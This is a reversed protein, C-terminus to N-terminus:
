IVEIRFIVDSGYITLGLQKDQQEHWNPERKQFHCAWRPLDLGMGAKRSM